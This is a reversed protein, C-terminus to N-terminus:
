GRGACLEGALQKCLFKYLFGIDRHHTTMSRCFTSNIVREFFDVIFGGIFFCLFIFRCLIRQCMKFAERLYLQRYSDVSIRLTAIRQNAALRLCTTFM